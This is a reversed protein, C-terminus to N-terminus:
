QALQKIAAEIQDKYEPHSTEIGRVTQIAEAKMGAAYEAQALSVTTGVDGPSALLLAQYVKIAGAYDKAVIYSQAMQPTNWAAPDNGMLKRAEPEKGDAVLAVAYALKAQGDGIDTNYTDGLLSAAEDLKGINILSNSLEIAISQKLPSLEHATTLLQAAASYQGITDMFSGALTYTRADKWPAAAIQDKIAKTSLDYFGQMTQGSAQRNAIIASGCSLLQERIEQNAVYADISLASEFLAPDPSPGTCATLASILRTNAELPRVNFLWVVAILALMVAPAAVYEVAESSLPKSGLWPVPRGEKLSAAFALLAFFLVYSALNDFVFANHIAYGALLGSLVSKEAASLSSKWVAYLFLFYLSLYSLLGITGSATLWDLYVSHARDFWQEQNWLKPNYNANFIYNFNEQGWGLVPREVFGSLAMSWVYLRATTEDSSLSISAMRGLIPNKQIFPQHRLLVFAVGLIVLLSVAGGSIRRSGISQGKGFVAYVLLALMIGGVLGLITGRTATEILLFSFFVALIPYYWNLFGARAAKRARASFFLYAAIGANLLMYVAM